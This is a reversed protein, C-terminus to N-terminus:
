LRGLLVLMLMIALVVSLLSSPYYDWSRSYPWTPLTGIILLVIVAILVSDVM